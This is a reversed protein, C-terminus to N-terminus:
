AIKVGGEALRRCVACAPKCGRAPCHLRGWLVMRLHLLGWSEQPFIKKLDAEVKEVTNGRSLGWRRALRFIHTDVPFAPYGFAQNMVVSATKHGVGPLAELEEFSSPVQGGHKAVLMRAMEVLRKAKSEFFGCSHIYPSVQQWEMAALAAANPAAAFLAPTVMNVRADTCQASLVVAVLLTFADSHHLPVEPEPIGRALEELVIQAKEARKM